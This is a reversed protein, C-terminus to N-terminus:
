VPHDNSMKQLYIQSWAVLLAAEKQERQPPRAQNTERLTLLQQFKAEQMLFFCVCLNACMLTVDKLWKMQISSASVLSAGKRPGPIRSGSDKKAVGEQRRREGKASRAAEIEERKEQEEKFVCYLHENYCVSLPLHVRVALTERQLADGNTRWDLALYDM